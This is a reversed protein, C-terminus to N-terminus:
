PLSTSIRRNQAAISNPTVCWRGRAVIVKVKPNLKRLWEFTKAGDLQPM